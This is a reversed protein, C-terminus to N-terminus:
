RRFVASLHDPAPIVTSRATRRRRSSKNKKQPFHELWADVSGGATSSVVDFSFHEEAKTWLNLM